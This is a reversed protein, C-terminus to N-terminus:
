DAATEIIIDQKNITSNSISSYDLAFIPHHRSSLILKSPDQDLHLQGYNFGKFSM